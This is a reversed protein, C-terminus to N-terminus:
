RMRYHNTRMRYSHLLCMKRDVIGFSIACLQSNELSLQVNIAAVIKQLIETRNRQNVARLITYSVEIFEDEKQRGQEM